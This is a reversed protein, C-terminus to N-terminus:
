NVISRYGELPPAEKIDHDVMSRQKIFDSMRLLSFPTRKSILM